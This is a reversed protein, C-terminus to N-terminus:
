TNSVWETLQTSATLLDAPDPRRFVSHEEDIGELMERYVSGQLAALEDWNYMAVRDPGADGLRRRRVADVALDQLAQALKGIDFAPVRFGVQDDVLARLCPIDFAVVPTGVALAEAAVMGFTEYRSPMVVVDAGALWAFRENAAIRGVFHVRDGIGLRRALDELDQRDPGDGGLILDQEIGPAILAYAELLLDLGKQAIELRGLYAIGARPRVYTQFAGRDLGNAIVTVWARPNRRTLDDGLDASVAIMRRHARVGAREVWSFPLHYQASKEEAFLWQVVGVVPRSTMWPVAVSSFPAGFDEVVLDSRYRLLALPLCAFYALREIFDTGAVGVHVYRVGDEIRPRCGRYRACVVTIDFTSALRRNIEHTRVSGGGAGPRRPDEYGLHLVRPRASGPRGDGAARVDRLSRLCFIVVCGLAWVTWAVVHQRLLVLPLCALGVVAGSRGVTRLSGTWTRHIQRLLAAAVLTGGVTVAMALGVIGRSELGSVDIVACVAVGLALLKTTRRFIASAQFYTTTLNVVGMALGALASWPLIAGIDGYRAPFLRGVAVSPLTATILTIPICVRLYLSVSERIVVSPHSRGAIMRPFIVVSIAAGFFVPVRGLINAAQYTALAPQAGLILSGIIVDMSALVAVGAQIALLGQTSAWLSRGALASWSWRIDRVMYALGFGAVVSAGLAFGAVAGSAGAGLAVLAVGSGLKVVVESVRLVALYRFRQQGQFFGAATAGVFILFVSCFAAALLSNSAYHYAVLCTVLGAAVGQVMTATLCFTVATRRRPRDQGSRLVEQALVWPLAAGAITGCVLLLASISGFQAFERAPLMFLLVITYAYNLLSVVGTAGLVVAEDGVRHRRGPTAAMSAPRAPGATAPAGILSTL